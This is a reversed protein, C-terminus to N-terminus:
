APTFYWDAKDGAVREAQARAKELSTATGSGVLMKNSSDEVFWYWEDDIQRAELHFAGTEARQVFAKDM